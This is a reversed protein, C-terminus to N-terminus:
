RHCVPRTCRLLFAFPQPLREVLGSVAVVPGAWVIRVGQEVVEDRQRAQRRTVVQDLHAAGCTFSGARQGPAPEPDGADLEAGFEGRGGTRVQGSESDLHDLARELFPPRILRGAQHVRGRGPVPDIRGDPVLSGPLRQAGAAVQGDPSRSVHKGRRRNTRRPSGPRRRRSRRPTAAPDAPAVAAAPSCGSSRASM